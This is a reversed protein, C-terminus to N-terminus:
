KAAKCWLCYWDGSSKEWGTLLLLEVFRKRSDLYKVDQRGCEGACNVMYERVTGIYIKGYPTATVKKMVSM